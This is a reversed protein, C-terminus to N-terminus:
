RKNWTPDARPLDSQKWCNGWSLDPLLKVFM